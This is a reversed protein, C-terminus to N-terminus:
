QIYFLFKPKHLGKNLNIKCKFVDESENVECLLLFVTTTFLFVQTEHVAVYSTCTDKKVTKIMAEKELLDWCLGSEVWISGTKFALLVIVDLILSFSPLNIRWNSSFSWSIISSLFLSLSILSCLFLCDARFALYISCHPM